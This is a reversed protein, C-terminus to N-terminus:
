MQRARSLPAFIMTMSGRAVGIPRVASRSSGTLGPRSLASMFPMRWTQMSFPHISRSKMM